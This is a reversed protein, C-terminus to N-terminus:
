ILMENLMNLNEINDIELITNIVKDTIGDGIIPRLLDRNKEILMQEDAPNEFDGIPYEVYEEFTKNENTIVIAKAPWKNPYEKEITSSLVLDTKEIIKKIIKDNILEDKFHELKPKGFSLAIAVCYPVSFKAEYISKPNCNSAIELTASYTEIMIKKIESTKINYKEKLLLIADIPPHTHRCSPYLKFCNEDIKYSVGLDNIIKNKDANKAMANFFGKKGELIYKSGTFGKKALLSVIIGNKAANAPHLHKTMAGESIFEWLGAAISGANGLAHVLQTKNLDLLKGAAAAAGFVGCTGTNHWYYYHSPNVAEGIRIAIEYGTVIAEILRKGSLNHKEALAVCVPMIPAGPHVTSGKHIDDFELIHCCGANIFAAILSTTKNGNGLITSEGKGDLDCLSDLFIKGAKTSSGAITSGYFDLLSLKAINVTKEPFNEYKTAVVFESLIETLSKKNM